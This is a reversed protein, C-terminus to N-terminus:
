SERIYKNSLMVTRPLCFVFRLQILSLDEVLQVQAVNKDSDRLLLNGVANKHQGRVVVVRGGVPPLVTELDHQDVTILTGGDELRIDCTTGSIVDIVKAKKCYYKGDKLKKNRVRVRIDPRVWIPEQQVWCVWTLVICFERVSVLRVAM